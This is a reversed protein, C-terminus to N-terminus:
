ILCKFERALGCGKCGSRCSGTVEGRYARRRESLLFKKTVFVDVFDWPLPEDEGWERTYDGFAVGTERFAEEWLDPRFRETWGDFVCGKRYAAELVASLRRDGRAFAAELRSVDYDNWSLHAKKGLARRLLEQKRAVEERAAQREWQFPTFPKPIFTSCSVGITLGRPRDPLSFWVDRIGDVLGAIALVDEETETPLGLMFYLKVNRYGLEFAQRATRYVEEETVDKNIVDRLRQSGAEPAFTLSTRRSESAFEGDFNDVRLSPLSLNTDAPLRERLSRILARLDPYDGTSLSNMSLEDYGALEVLECAQATLTQVSRPRVPRYIFGAQCFRCGRYCGRMVEIVARDHVAEVNPVIMRTSFVARDLDKCLAKKVTMRPLAPVYVGQIRAARELFGRKGAGERKCSLYLEALQAMSEEGDGIVFLDVFDALPEPNVACPGGCQVIPADEGRDAARLPIGALDLMYLLNTYSLEYQLSFGLMDFEGLPRRLGLSILPLGNERLKEGYDPWPTFCRDVTAGSRALAESVIRIGLNSMGVEYVDPFCMCYNFAGWVLDPAGYEGGTYRAPKEVERLIRSYDM